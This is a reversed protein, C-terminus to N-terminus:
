ETRRLTVQSMPSTDMYDYDCQVVSGKATETLVGAVGLVAVRRGVHGTWRARLSTVVLETRVCPWFQSVARVLDYTLPGTLDVWAADFVQINNEAFDEFSACAFSQIKETSFHAASVHDPLHQVYGTSNGPMDLVAAAFIAPDKELCTFRTSLGAKERHRLLAREFKWASGPLTLISLPGPWLRPIFHEVLIGRATNKRQHIDDWFAKRAFAVGPSETGRRLKDTVTAAITEM